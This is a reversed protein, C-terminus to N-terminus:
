RADPLLGARADATHQLQTVLMGLETSPATMPCGGGPEIRSLARSLRRIPVALAVALIAARAPM